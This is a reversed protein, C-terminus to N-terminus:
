GPRRARPTPRRPPGPSAFRVEPSAGPAAFDLLSLGEGTVEAVEEPSLRRFPEVLLTATGGDPTSDDRTGDDRTGDDRTITWEAAVFGDILLKRVSRQVTLDSVPVGALIIRARDQHSLFVNDFEPLFRPPAPTDPAPPPSDPLDLLERGAGDRFTRLRPRLRETIERVGTLGSWTRIDPNGAPGFAALYRLVLDDPSPVTALPRGLWAEATTLRAPGTKGWIGRPPLQVLPLLITAAYSLAQRDYGPWREELAPVLATRIRPEQELLSRAFGAVESLDLDGLHRGFGSKLSRAAVPHTLPLLELCDDATLLHVTRRQAWTRVAQREEILRSLEAPDFGEIRSSLAYYPDMPEQAQMGVLHEIVDSAPLRRRDLLLQRALLARNLARDGIRDTM